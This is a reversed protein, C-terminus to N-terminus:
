QRGYKKELYDVLSTREQTTPQDAVIIEFITGTFYFNGGFGHGIVFPATDPLVDAQVSNIKAGGIQSATLAGKQGVTASATMDLAFIGFGEASSSCINANTGLEACIQNGNGEFQLEYGANGGTSKAILDNYQQTEDAATYRAVILISFSEKNFQLATTDPIVLNGGGAFAIGHVGGADADTVFTVSGGGNGVAALLKNDSKDHWVSVNGGAAQTVTTADTADLWLRLRAGLMTLPTAVSADIGSADVGSADKGGNGSGDPTSSDAASAAAADAISGSADGVTDGGGGDESSSAGGDSASVSYAADCAAVAFVIAFSALHRNGV